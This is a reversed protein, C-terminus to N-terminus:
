LYVVEERGKGPGRRGGVSMGKGEELLLDAEAERM